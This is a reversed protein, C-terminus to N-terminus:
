HRWHRGLDTRGFIDRMKRALDGVAV